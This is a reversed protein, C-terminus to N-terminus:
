KEARMQKIGTLARQSEQLIRLATNICDKKDGGTTSLKIFDMGTKNLLITQDLLFNQLPDCDGSSIANEIKKNKM